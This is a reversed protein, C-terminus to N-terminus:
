DRCIEVVKRCQEATFKEMHCEEVPLDMQAALWKYAQTRSMGGSKWIPDFAAHAEGRAIPAHKSLRDAMNRLATIHEYTM